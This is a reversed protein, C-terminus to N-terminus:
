EGKLLERVRAAVADATQTAQEPTDNAVVFDPEFGSVGAETPHTRQLETLTSGRGSVLRVVLDCLAAENAYRVDDFIIVTPASLGSMAHRQIDVWFDQGKIQRLGHGIFQACERFDPDPVEGEEDGKEIGVYELMGRLPAAFKRIDCAMQPHPLRFHERVLRAVTTKGSGAIGAFGIVIHPRHKV